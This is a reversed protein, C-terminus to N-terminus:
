EPAEVLILWGVRVTEACIRGDRETTELVTWASEGQLRVAIAADARPAPLCIEVPEALLPDLRPYFPGGLREITNIGTVPRQYVHWLKLWVLPSGRVVRHRTEGVGVITSLGGPARRVLEPREALGYVRTSLFYGRSRAAREPSLSAAIASLDLAGSGNTTRNSSIESMALPFAQTMAHPNANWEVPSYALNPEIPPPEAPAGNGGPNAPPNQPPNEPPPQGAPQQNSNNTVSRDTFSALHNGAQDRLRNTAPAAYSLLVTQGATVAPSLTITLRGATRDTNTAFVTGQNVGNIKYTWYDRSNHGQLNTETFRVTLTTGNAAITASEVTPATTDAAKATGVVAMQLAGPVRLTNWTTVTHVRFLSVDAMSWGLQRGPDEVDAETHKYKLNRSGSSPSTGVDVVVWYTTNAALEIGTGSATFTNVGDDTLGTRTLTGLSSGPENSSNNSHLQVTYTPDNPQSPQEVEFDIQVKTLTYGGANRGTTFAQAVDNGTNVEISRRAQAVNGVLYNKAYGNLKMQAAGVTTNISWVNDGRASSSHRDALSWGALGDEDASDTTKVQPGSTGNSTVKLVVWYETGASLEIGDGSATFTNLGTSLSSPKTLASGVITNPSGNDTYVALSYPPDTGTGVTMDLEVSTLTYGDASDGTEFLFARDRSFNLTSTADAESTNDVLTVSTPTTQADAATGLMFVALAALLGLAALRLLM